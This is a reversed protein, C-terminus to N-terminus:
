EVSQYNSATGELYVEDDKCISIDDGPYVTAVEEYYLMIEDSVMGSCPSIAGAAVTIVTSGTLIDNNGPMYQTITSNACTFQGDGGTQWLITTYNSVITTLIISDFDVVSIDEGAYVDPLPKLIITVNKTATTTCPSIPFANLTVITGGNDRDQPGGFYQTNIVSPNVFYGDGQTTWLTGENNSAIGVLPVPMNECKTRSSPGNCSPGELFSISLESCVTGVCPSMGEACVEITVIGDNIDDSGPTYYSISEIPNSFVGDGSSTWEISSYFQANADLIIADNGCASMDEGVDVIPL